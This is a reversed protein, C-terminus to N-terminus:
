YGLRGVLKMEHQSFYKKFITNEPAEFKMINKWMGQM